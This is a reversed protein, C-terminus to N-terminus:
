LVRPCLQRTVVVGVQARASSCGAVGSRWICLWAKGLVIVGSSHWPFVDPAQLCLGPAEVIVGGEDVCMGSGCRRWISVTTRVTAIFSQECSQLSVIGLPLPEGFDCPSLLDCPRILSCGAVLDLTVFKVATDFPLHSHCM